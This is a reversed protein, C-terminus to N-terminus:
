ALVTQDTFLSQETVHAMYRRLASLLHAIESEEMVLKLVRAPTSQMFRLAKLLQPPFSYQTDIFGGQCLLCRFGGRAPDLVVAESPLAQRCIQCRSLDPKLGAEDLAHIMVAMEILGRQPAPLGPLMQWAHAVADFLTPLTQAEDFLGTIALTMNRASLLAQEENHLKEHQDLTEVAGIYNGARTVTLLVLASTYPELHGGRRSPVRRVGKAVAKVLGHERTFLTVLRDAEGISKRSLILAKLKHRGVM